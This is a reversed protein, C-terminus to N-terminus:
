PSPNFEYMLFFTAFAYAVFDYHCDDTHEYQCFRPIGTEANGGLRLSASIRAVLAIPM